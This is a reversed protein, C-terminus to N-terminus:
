KGGEHGKNEEKKSHQRKKYTLVIALLILLFLIAAMIIKNWLPLQSWMNLLKDIVPVNSNDMTETDFPDDFVKNTIKGILVDRGNTTSASCTSLLVIREDITVKVEKRTNRAMQILMDLYAQREARETIKTRFVSANYADTDHIFAFFELGHERGNYYLRGYRRADFYSKELFLGIEGFMAKREMHHGYLISSFDTFDRSCNSDLFINGSLSYEGTADTNVYKLNDEGQTVPYDIHTGYVTLWAFVEPNIEQLEKFSLGKNEVTPKYAEYRTAYAADHLQATDWITYCSFGLLLLIIILVATNVIGNATQIMRKGAKAATSM